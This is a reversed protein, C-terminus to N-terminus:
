NSTANDNGKTPQLSNKLATDIVKKFAPCIPDASAVYAHAPAPFCLHLLVTYKEARTVRTDLATVKNNTEDVTAHLLSVVLWATLLGLVVLIANLRM